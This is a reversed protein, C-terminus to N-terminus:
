RLQESHAGLSHGPHNYFYTSSLLFSYILLYLTAQQDNQGTGLWEMQFSFPLSFSLSLVKMLVMGRSEFMFQGFRRYQNMLFVQNLSLHLHNVQWFVCPDQTKQYVKWTSWKILEKCLCLGNMSWMFANRYVILPFIEPNTCFGRQTGTQSSKGNTLLVDSLQINWIHAVHQRNLRGWIESICKHGFLLLLPFTESAQM